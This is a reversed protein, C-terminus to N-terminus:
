HYTWLKTFIILVASCVSLGSYFNLPYIAKVVVEL